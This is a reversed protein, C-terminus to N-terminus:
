NQLYVTFCTKANEPMNLVNSAVFVKLGLDATDNPNLTVLDNIYYEYRWRWHLYSKIPNVTNSKNEDWCSLPTKHQPQTVYYKLGDLLM